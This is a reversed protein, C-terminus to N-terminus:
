VCAHMADAILRSVTCQMADGNMSYALGIAGVVYAVCDRKVTVVIYGLM